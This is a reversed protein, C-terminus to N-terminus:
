PTGDAAVFRVELLEPWLKGTVFFTDSSRNYAIGNPVYDLEMANVSAPVIGALDAAAVIRGTQKEVQILETTPYVNAWIHNDVCELENAGAVASAPASVTVSSLPEFSEAHRRTIQDDGSTMYFDKGDFCLGWGEGRYGVRRQVQLTAVDYFYAVLEKWTVQVLNTSTAALGEGFVTRPLDHRKLVSGTRPDIVRVTSEGYRGTSEFLYGDHFVLGQTYATADHPLRRVVEVSM